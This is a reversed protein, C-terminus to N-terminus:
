SQSAPIVKQVILYLILGVFLIASGQLLYMESSMWPGYNMFYAQNFGNQWAVNIRYWAKSFLFSTAFIFVYVSPQWNLKQAAKVTFAVFFPFAAFLFRSESSLGLVLNAAVFIVMGAGYSQVIRTFPKWLFITLLTLPGFFVVHAVIFIGPLGISKSIGNKVFLRMYEFERADKGFWALALTYLTFFLVAFLLRLSFVQKLLTPVDFLAQNQLLDKLSFFLYAAAVLMSLYILSSDLIWWKDYNGARLESFYHLLLVGSLLLPILYPLRLKKIWLPLNPQAPLERNFVFLVISYYVITSWTFTGILTVVWFWVWKRKLFCYLLLVGLCFATQDTYVPRYFYLKLVAVNVFLGTFALIKGWVNFELVQTIKSWFFAAIALLILNYFRFAAIINTDSFPVNLLTMGFHILASPVIRQVYYKPLEHNFLLTPLNVAMDRFAVGDDYGIGNAELIVEGSLVLNACGVLVVLLSLLLNQLNPHATLHHLINKQAGQASQPSSLSELNTM